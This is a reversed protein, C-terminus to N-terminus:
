FNRILLEQVRKRSVGMVSYPVAIQEITVRRGGRARGRYLQRIFPDDNYSLLWRGRVRGMLVDAMRTHDEDTFWHRYSKAGPARYPPDVYFFTDPRDYAKVCHDWPMREVWVISLREVVKSVEEKAKVWTLEPRRSVKAIYACGMRKAGFALRIVAYFKVARAVEGGVGPLPKWENFLERAALLGAAAETFEAPRHKIVRWFNVLEGDLDNLIESKSTAPDKAFLLWAAGSFLEVYCQHRPFKALIKERIRFKGGVWRLPSRLM